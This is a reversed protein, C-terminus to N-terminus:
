RDDSRQARNRQAYRVRFSLDDAVISTKTLFYCKGMALRAAVGVWYWANTTIDEVSNSYWTLLLAAQVALDRNWEVRTDFLM